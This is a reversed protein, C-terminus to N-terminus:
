ATRKRCGIIPDLGDFIRASMLCAVDVRSKGIMSARLLQVTISMAFDFSCEHVFPPCVHSFGVNTRDSMTLSSPVSDPKCTRHASLATGFRTKVAFENTHGRHARHDSVDASTLVENKCM